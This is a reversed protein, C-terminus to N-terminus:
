DAKLDRGGGGGGGGGREKRRGGRREGGRGRATGATTGHEPRTLDCEGRRSERGSRRRRHHHRYRHSLLIGPASGSRRDKSAPADLRVVGSDMPKAPLLVRRGRVQPGIPALPRVPAPVAMVRPPPSSPTRTTM